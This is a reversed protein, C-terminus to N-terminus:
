EERSGRAIEVLPDGVLLSPLSASHGQIKQICPSATKSSLLGFLVDGIDGERSHFSVVVKIEAIMNQMYSM